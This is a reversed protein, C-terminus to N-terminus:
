RFSSNVCQRNGAKESSLGALGLAKGVGGSIDVLPNGPILGSEKLIELVGFLHPDVTKFDLSPSIWM